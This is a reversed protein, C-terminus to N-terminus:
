RPSDLPGALRFRAHCENCTQEISAIEERLQSTSLSADAEGLLAARERMQAALALFTERDESSLEIPALAGALLDASEALSRAVAAIEGIRTARETSLDMQQPLREHMLVDLSRMLSQVRQSHVAHQAAGPARSLDQEYRRQAPLACVALTPLLALGLV